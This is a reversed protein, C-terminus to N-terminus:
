GLRSWRQRGLATLCIFLPFCAAPSSPFIDNYTEMWFCVTTSVDVPETREQRIGFNRAVRLLVKALIPSIWSIIIVSGCWSKTLRNCRDSAVYRGKRSASRPRRIAPSRSGFWHYLGHGAVKIRQDYERIFVSWVQEKMKNKRGGLRVYCKMWGVVSILVFKLSFFVIRPM